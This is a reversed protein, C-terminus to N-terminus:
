TNKKKLPVDVVSIYVYQGVRERCSARGTKDGVALGLRAVTGGIVELVYRARRGAAITDLSFPVAREHLDVVKGNSSIFLMDLPLPTNKMWMAIMIPRDFVFLMGHDPALERRYM